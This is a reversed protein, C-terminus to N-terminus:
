HRDSQPSGDLRQHEHDHLGCGQETRRAAGVDDLEPDVDGYQRRDRRQREREEIRIEDLLPHPRTAAAHAQPEQRDDDDHEHV